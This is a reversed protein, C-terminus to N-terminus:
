EPLGGTDQGTSDSTKTGQADYQANIDEVYKEFTKNAELLQKLSGLLEDKTLARAESKTEDITAFRVAGNKGVKTVVSLIQYPVEARLADTVKNIGFLVAGKAYMNYLKFEETSGKPRVGVTLLHQYKVDVGEDKLSQISRGSLVDIFNSASTYTDMLKTKVTTQKTPVDYVNYMAKRNIVLFDIDKFDYVVNYKIVEGDDDKEPEGVLQGIEAVGAVNNVQIRPYPLTVNDGGHEFNKKFEAEAEEPSMGQEIMAAIIELRMEENM